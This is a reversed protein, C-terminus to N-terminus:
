TRKMRKSRDKDAVEGNYGKAMIRPRFARLTKDRAIADDLVQWGGETQQLFRGGYEHVTKVVEMSLCTKGFKTECNVYREVYDEILLGWKHNGPFDRFPRGRGMLVDNPKPCLVVGSEAERRETAEEQLREAERRRMLWERALEAKGLEAHEDDLADGCDIGFTLLSYKTEVSSGFHIRLRLRAQKGLSYRIWSIFFSMWSSREEPSKICLHVSAQQLPLCDMNGARVLVDKLHLMKGESPGSPVFGVQSVGKRQAAEGELTAMILYWFCRFMAPSDSWEFKGLDFYMTTRGARDPNPLELMSGRTLINMCREDLDELTIRRVLKGEGFIELKHTFHKAIRNAAQTTNFHEHRLFMMKFKVDAMISPKLFLARDLAQRRLKPIKSLAEDLQRTKIAVFEPTEEAAKAVGHVDDYVREREAVSLANLESALQADTVDMNHNGSYSSSPVDIGGGFQQDCGNGNPTACCPQETPNRFM